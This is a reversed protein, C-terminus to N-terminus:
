EFVIMKKTASFSNTKMSYLLMGRDNFFKSDVEIENYGAKFKGKDSYLLVGNLNFIELVIEDKKELYFPIITESKWPNPEATYLTLNTQTIPERIMLSPILIEEELSYAEAETIDSTLRFSHKLNGKSKAKAKITMMVEDKNFRHGNENFWSLTFKDDFLEFHDTGLDISASTVDMFELNPDSITFQFGQSIYSDCALLDIAIFENEDYDRGIVQLQLSKKQSRDEFSQLNPQATGNIDGIKIGIFDVDSVSEQIFPFNISENFPWPNTVDSFIFDKPVFRWSESRPFETYRGLIIKRLEVLDFASISQSNNADAAILVYPNNITEIGLLHKQIKVLDLTSVGNKHNDNKAPSITFDQGEINSFLYVGDEATIYTPFVHGPQTLTVHVNGIGLQYRDKIHGTLFTEEHYCHVSGHELIILKFMEREINREHWEVTGNCNIDRGKDAIWIDQLFIVGWNQFDCVYFVSDAALYDPSFSYLFTGETTCDDSIEYVLDSLTLHVYGVLTATGILPDDPINYVPKFCDYVDIRRECVTVQGCSDTVIWKIRHYPMCGSTYPIGNESIQVDPSLESDFSLEAEGLSDTLISIPSQLLYAASTDHFFLQVEYRLNKGCTSRVKIKQSIHVSCSTANPNNEGLYIKNNAPLRVGEDSVCLSYPIDSCDTFEPGSQSKAINQVALFLCLCAAVKFYNNKM